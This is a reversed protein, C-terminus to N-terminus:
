IRLPVPGPPGDSPFVLVAANLRVPLAWGRGDSGDLGGVQAAVVRLSFSLNPLAAHHGSVCCQYSAPMPSPTAPEHGHCGAAHGAPTGSPMAEAGPWSFITALLLVTAVMRLIGHM